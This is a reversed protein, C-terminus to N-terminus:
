SEVGLSRGFEHLTDLKTIALMQLADRQLTHGELTSAVLARAFRKSVRVAQTLYSSGGSGRPIARLRALERHYENWFEERSLGGVDHVRRLIVLSSVKFWRALRDLEHRLEARRDGDEIARHPVEYARARMRGTANVKHQAM